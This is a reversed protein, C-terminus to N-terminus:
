GELEEMKRKGGAAPSDDDDEAPEAFADAKKEGKKLVASPPIIGKNNLYDFDSGAYGDM